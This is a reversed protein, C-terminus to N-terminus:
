PTSRYTLGLRDFIWSIVDVKQEIRESLATGGGHGSTLFPSFLFRTPEFRGEGRNHYLMVQNTSSVTGNVQVLPNSSSAIFDV